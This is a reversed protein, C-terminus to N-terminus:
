LFWTPKEESIDALYRRSGCECRPFFYYKTFYENATVESPLKEVERQVGALIETVVPPVYGSQSQAGCSICKMYVSTTM